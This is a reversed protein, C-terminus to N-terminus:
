QNSNPLSENPVIISDIYISVEQSRVAWNRFDYYDGMVKIKLKAPTNVASCTDDVSLQLSHENPSSCDDADCATHLEELLATCTTEIMEQSALNQIRDIKEGLGNRADFVNINEMDTNLGGYNDM